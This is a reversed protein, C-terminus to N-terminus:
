YHFFAGKSRRVPPKLKLGMRLRQANTLQHDIVQPIASDRISQVVRLDLPYDVSLTGETATPSVAAVSAVALTAIAFFKTLMM